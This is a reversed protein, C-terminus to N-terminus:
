QAKYFFIYFVLLLLAGNTIFFLFSIIVTKVGAWIKNKPKYFGIYAWITYATWLLLFVRNINPAQERFFYFVPAFLLFGLHRQSSLFTNLVLNEAYNYGSRKFFIYSYLSLVPITIFQFINFYQYMFKTFQQQFVAVGKGSMQLNGMLLTGLDFKVTVFVVAAISLILYQFPNFYKKRKGEIYERIVTGPRIFLEKILFLIGSDVHTFSHFFDHLIHKVSFRHTDAKQGCKPCYNEAVESGCNKCLIM